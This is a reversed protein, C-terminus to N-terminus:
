SSAELQIWKHEQPEALVPGLLGDVIQKVAHRDARTANTGRLAGIM